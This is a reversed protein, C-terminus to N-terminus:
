KIIAFLGKLAISPYETPGVPDTVTISETPLTLALKM